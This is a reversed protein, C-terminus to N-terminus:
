FYEGQLFIRGPLDIWPFFAILLEVCSYLVIICLMALYKFIHLPPLQTWSIVVVSVFGDLIWKTPLPNM